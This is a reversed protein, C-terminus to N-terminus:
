LKLVLADIRDVYQQEDSSLKDVSQELKKRLEDNQKKLEAARTQTTSALKESEELAM